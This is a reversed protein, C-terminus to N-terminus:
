CLLEANEKTLRTPLTLWPERKLHTGDCPTRIKLMTETM